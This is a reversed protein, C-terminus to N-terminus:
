SLNTGSIIWSTSAVKVATAIGYQGLSRTGTSGTGMLYMSDSAIAIQLTGSITAFTITTGLGYAVSANAAITVAFTTSISAKLIHSNADSSVTTYATTQANQPMWSGGPYFVSTATGLKGTTMAGFANLSTVTTNLLAFTTSPSTMSTSVGIGQAFNIAATATQTGDKLMCTSLATALESWTSAADTSSITTGTVPSPAFSNSTFTFTGSSFSM